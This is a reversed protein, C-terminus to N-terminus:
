KVGDITPNTLKNPLNNLNFWKIEECKHPEMNRVKGDVIKCLFQPAVWHQHEEKILDDTVSLLKVIEIKVGIEEKVERILTQKLTEFMKAWWGPISWFDAKNRCEKSRKMLLLENNENLIFAWCGVGIYDKGKIM